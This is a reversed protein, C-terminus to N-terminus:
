SGNVITIVAGTIDLADNAWVVDAESLWKLIDGPDNTKVRDVSFPASYVM